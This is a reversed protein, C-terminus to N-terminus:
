FNRALGYYGGDSARIVDDHSKQATLPKVSDKDKGMSYLDFDSSIPHLHRDKRAGGQGCNPGGGGGNGNGGDGGNGGGNGSGNGGAGGGGAGGGGGGNGGANASGGANGGAALHLYATRPETNFRLAVPWEGDASLSYIAPIMQPSSKRRLKLKALSGLDDVTGCEVRWYQYPTGWPDLLTSRGVDAISNPYTGVALAFGKIDKALGHLESVARAVRAKEIFEVYNPVALTALVGVISIALMVEILTFGDGHPLCSRRAQSARYPAITLDSEHEHKM